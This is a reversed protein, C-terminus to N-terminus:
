IAGEMDDIEPELEDIEERLERRRLAVDFAYGCAGCIGTAVLSSLNQCEPCKRVLQAACTYCYQTREPNNTGCKPCKWLSPTMGPGSQDPRPPPNGPPTLKKVPQTGAFVSPDLLGGTKANLGNGADYGTRKGPDSLISRITE